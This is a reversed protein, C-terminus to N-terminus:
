RAGNRNSSTVLHYRVPPMALVESDDEDEVLAELDVFWRSELAADINGFNRSNSDSGRGGGVGSGGGGEGEKAAGVGARGAFDAHERAVADSSETTAAAARLAEPVAMRLREPDNYPAFDAFVIRQQEGDNDGGSAISLSRVVGGPGAGAEVAALLEELTLHEIDDSGDGKEQQGVRPWVDLSDWITFKTPLESCRIQNGGVDGKNYGDDDDGGDNDGDNCDDDIDLGNNGYPYVAARVPESFAFLPAALSLFANRHTGLTTATSPGEASRPPLQTDLAVASAVALKLLELCSLGAVVATTTAIAPVIRGAILKTGLRDASPIGYARARLNSAATVFDLHGNSDDDKEFSLAEFCGRRAKERHSIDGYNCDNDRVVDSDQLSLSPSSIYDGHTAKSEVRKTVGHRWVAHRAITRIAARLRAQVAMAEINEDREEKAAPEASAKAANAYRAIAAAAGSSSFIYGNGDNDRGDSPASWEGMVAEAPLLLPALTEFRLRTAAAVLAVQEADSADLVLAVPRRRSGGSWFPLGTDSDTADLPYQARLSALANHFEGLMFTEVAWDESARVLISRLVMWRALRKSRMGPLEVPDEVGDCKANTAAAAVRSGDYKVAAEISACAIAAAEAAALAGEESGFHARLRRPLQPGAVFPNKLSTTMLSVLSEAQRNKVNQTGDPSRAILCACPYILTRESHEM